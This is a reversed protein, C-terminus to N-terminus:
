DSDLSELELQVTINAAGSVKVIHCTIVSGEALIPEAALFDDAMENLNSGEALIATQETDDRSHTTVDMDGRTYSHVTATAGSTGGEIEEAVAFSIDNTAQLHMMGLKDSLLIGTAGSTNGTVTEEVSFTGTLSGYAIVSDKVSLKTYQSARDALISVGDDRIDIELDGNVPADGAYVRLKEPAYDRELYYTAGFSSDNLSKEHFVLIRNM